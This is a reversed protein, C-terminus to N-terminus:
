LVSKEGVVFHASQTAALSHVIDKYLKVLRKVLLSGLKALTLAISDTTQEMDSICIDIIQPFVLLCIIFVYPNETVIVM